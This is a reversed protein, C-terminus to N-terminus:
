HPLLMLVVDRGCGSSNMTIIDFQTRVALTAESPTSPAAARLCDAERKLWAPRSRRSRRGFRASTDAYPSCLDKASPFAL